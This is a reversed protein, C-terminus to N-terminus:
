SCQRRWCRRCSWRGHWRCPLLVNATCTPTASSAVAHNSRVRWGSIWSCGLVACGSGSANHARARVQSLLLAGSEWALLLVFHLAAMRLSASPAAEAGSAPAAFSDSSSVLLKAACLLRVAAVVGTRGRRYSEPRAAAWAVLALLGATFAAMTAQAAPSSRLEVAEFASLMALVVLARADSGGAAVQGQKFSGAAEPGFYLPTPNSMIVM